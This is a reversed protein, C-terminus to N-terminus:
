VRVTIIRRAVPVVMLQYLIRLLTAAGTVSLVVTWHFTNLPATKFVAQMFPLYVVALQLFVSSLVAIILYPNSFFNIRLISGRESKCEFVYFLQFFNLTCLAMTRAKILDGEGLLLGLVFVTLSGMGIFVGRSMIKRWLGRSFVSEEPPRPPQEMVDREGRELGLAMAPLGDTVLNMFLIQIPLLPLPLGVLMAIFMTLVEGINCALMYRIFKRINDYINRGEEVAAVITAFNDDALVMDSAEKTVDTGTKGMSIGINVEKIAPADNVGDGTMAVIHGRKKLLRVIRM